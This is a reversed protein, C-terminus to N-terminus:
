ALGDLGGAFGEALAGGGGMREGFGVDFLVPGLAPGGPWISDLFVMDVSILFSAGTSKELGGASPMTRTVKRGWPRVTSNGKSSRGYSPWPGGMLKRSTESFKSM